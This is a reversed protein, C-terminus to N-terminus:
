GALLGSDARLRCFHRVEVTSDEMNRMFDMAHKKWAQQPKVRENWGHPTWLNINKSWRSGDM